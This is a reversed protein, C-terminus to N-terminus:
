VAGAERLKQIEEDSLGVIERLVEGTHEGLLPPPLTIRAPTRSLKLPTGVLKIKGATPHPMEILMERRLVQADQFVQEISNIPGCPIGEAQLLALWAASDRAAFVKELAPILATRNEVRAPNTAFRADRALDDREILACFKQWQRDAGIAVVISGDRTTFAQYPVITAHANGYRQPANGSILYSSAVNALWAVQSDLLAVDIFQGGGSKEREYLAALIANLAFLGTTIDAIAVGVKMPAGDPEGTISMIGGEAQAVFDYGARDKYPGTQGYGTIACYILRPNLEKLEGYGLRWGDMTGVKFNEVLVDAGSALKRAIERGKADKLNLTISKKNRNAGLYYASEGGAFPPGWQRTDDGDLSEIKIVEAGLDGLMMTCYPGALVRSFDIVRVGDLPHKNLM